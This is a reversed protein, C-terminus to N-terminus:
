MCWTSRRNSRSRPTTLSRTLFQFAIRPDSVLVVLLAKWTVKHEQEPEATSLIQPNDAHEVMEVEEKEISKEPDFANM